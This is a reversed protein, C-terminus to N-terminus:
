IPSRSDRARGGSRLAAPVQGSDAQGRPPHVDGLNRRGLSPIEVEEEEQIIIGSKEMTAVTAVERFLEMATYLKLKVTDLYGERTVVYAGDRGYVAMTWMAIATLISSKEIDTTRVGKDEIKWKYTKKVNRAGFLLPLKLWIAQM